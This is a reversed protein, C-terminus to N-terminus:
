ENNCGVEGDLRFDLMSTRTPLATVYVNLITDLAKFTELM